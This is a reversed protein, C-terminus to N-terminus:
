PTHLRTSGGQALSGGTGGGPGLRCGGGWSGRGPGKGQVQVQVAVAPRAVGAANSGAAAGTPPPRRRAPAPSPRLPEQSRQFRTHAQLSHLFPEVQDHVPTPRKHARAHRM